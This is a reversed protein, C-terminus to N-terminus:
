MPPHPMSNMTLPMRFVLCMAWDILTCDSQMIITTAVPLFDNCWLLPRQARIIVRYPPQHHPRIPFSIATCTQLVLVLIPVHCRRTLRVLWTNSITCRLVIAQLIVGLPNTHRLSPTVEGFRNISSASVPSSLAKISAWISLTCSHAALYSRHHGSPDKSQFSSQLNLPTCHWYCFVIPFNGFLGGVSISWFSLLARLNILFRSRRTPRPSHAQCGLGHRQRSLCPGHSGINLASHLELMFNATCYPKIHQCAKPWHVFKSTPAM